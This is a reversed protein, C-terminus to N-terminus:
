SLLFIWNEVDLKEESKDAKVVTKLDSLLTGRIKDVKEM